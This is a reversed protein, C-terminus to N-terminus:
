SLWTSHRMHLRTAYLATGAHTGLLDLLERDASELPGRHALLAYLALVGTVAGDVRLPVCATLPHGREDYPGYDGAFWPEGTHAVAGIMGEGLRVNPVTSPRIGVVSIPLLVPPSGVMEFVAMQECGLLSAVIGELALLVQARDLTSHLRHIAVYLSAAEAARRRAQSLAAGLRGVEAELEKIRGQLEVPDSVPDTV